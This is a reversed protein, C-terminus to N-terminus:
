QITRHCRSRLTRLISSRDIVAKNQSFYIDVLYEDETNESVRCINLENMIRLIYKLKVYNIEYGANKLASLLRRQRFVRMGARFDRRLTTYVAAFDDRTPIVNESEDFAGGANIEAYRMKDAEYTELSIGSYRADQILLQLSRVGRYENINLQFLIDAEEDAEFGITDPSRGFWVATFVSGASEVILKTHKGGGLPIVREVHVGTLLFVPAPNGVGFPELQELQVALEMTMQSPLVECDAEVTVSSGCDGLKEKAYANIRERFEAINCRKVSLGAALEHGGFRELLYSSDTLADVLNIGNVSRGSGKGVDDPAPFGRTAGDFSILISPLGYRDTLRSAVIGIIGQMWGDDELVIVRTDGFNEMAEIKRYAQEAIRNEEVQRRYNIECLEEALKRAEDRDESLLLRVAKSAHDIRGAANIRPAIGFGIYSSTVKRKQPASDQKTKGDTRFSASADMLAELGPLCQKQMKEIGRSVILRNEGLVPMVDAITGLAILDVYTDFVRRVCDGRPEGRDGGAAIELATVLKFVVGVGALEKFPYECDPRHPNVVAAALPLEAQCEHHDTVVVDVGLSRAYEVEENATIGTDVTIMFDMGDKVLKGIAPVSVGYGERERSPIYYDVDAGQSKLYLYLVTVSTVGDVDYDGYIVIKAHDAIARRIREVAASMDKMLFPDNMQETDCAVFASVEEKTRCGRCYLLKATVPLLGTERALVAIQADAGRSEM